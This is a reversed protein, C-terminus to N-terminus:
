LDMLSGGGDRALDGVGMDLDGDGISTGREMDREGDGCIGVGRATDIDGAEGFDTEGGRGGSDIDGIRLGDMDEPDGVIGRELDGLWSDLDKPDLDGLGRGALSDWDGKYWEREGELDGEREGTLDGGLGVVGVSMDEGDGAAEGARGKPMGEGAEELELDGEGGGLRMGAGSGGGGGEVAAFFAAASRAAAASLSAASLAAAAASLSAVALANAALASTSLTAAAATSFTFAAAAAAAAEADGEPGPAVPLARPSIVSVTPIITTPKGM